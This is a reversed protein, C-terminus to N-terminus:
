FVFLAGIFCLSAVSVSSYLLAGNNTQQITATTSNSSSSQVVATSSSSASSAASSETVSTGVASSEVADVTSSRATSSEAPASSSVVESAATSSAVAATTASAVASPTEPNTKPAESTATAAAALAGSASSPIYWYPSNVGASSCVSTAANTFVAVDNGQCASAVCEAIPGEFQSMMCLCGTDWYPCPTSDTSENETLCQQACSPVNSYVPDAFGNITATKVVSPYTSWNQAFAGSALLITLSLM